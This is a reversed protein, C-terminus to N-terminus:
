LLWYPRAKFMAKRTQEMAELVSESRRDFWHEIDKDDRLKHAKFTHCVYKYLALERTGAM